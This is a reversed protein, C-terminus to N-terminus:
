SKIAAETLMEVETPMAIHYDDIIQLALEKNNTNIAEVIQEPNTIIGGFNVWEVATLVQQHVWSILEPTKIWFNSLARAEVGFKKLRYAGAKGYLERRRTDDDLILSPITIFLDIAQVLELSTKTKPNDYGIHLHGGASRLLPDIGVRNIENTEGTWANEDPDCGFTQSQQTMLQDPEFTASAQIALELGKPKLITDSIYDKVFTIHKVLEEATKCPPINFEVACNDEQIAHGENTIPLPNKKTGGVLGVVSIFKGTNSDRLFMEPDTGITINRIKNDKNM